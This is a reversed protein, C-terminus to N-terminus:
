ISYGNSVYCCDYFNPLNFIKDVGAFLKSNMSVIVYDIALLLSQFLFALIVSKPFSIKICWFMFVSILIILAIQREIFRNALLFVILFILGSLVATLILNIWVKNRKVGFIEYFIKCCLIELVILSINQLYDIM